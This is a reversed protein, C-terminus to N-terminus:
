IEIMNIINIIDEFSEDLFCEKVNAIDKYKEQLNELQVSEIDIEPKNLKILFDDKPKYELDCKKSNCYYKVKITPMGRFLEDFFVIGKNSIMQQVKEKVQISKLKFSGKDLKVNININYTYKYEYVSSKKQIKRLQFINNLILKTKENIKLSKLFDNFEEENVKIIIKSANINNKNQLYQLNVNKRLNIKISENNSKNYYSKNKWDNKQRNRLVERIAKHSEEPIAIIDKDILKIVNDISPFSYYNKLM